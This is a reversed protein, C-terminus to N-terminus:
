LVSSCRGSHSSAESDPVSPQRCASIGAALPCPLARETTRTCVATAFRPLAHPTSRSLSAPARRWLRLGVLVVVSQDPSISRPPEALMGAPVIALMLLPTRLAVYRLLDGDEAALVDSANEALDLAVALGTLGLIVALLRILVTKSIHLAIIM